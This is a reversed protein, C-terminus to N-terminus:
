DSGAVPKTMEGGHRAGLDAIDKYNSVIKEEHASRAIRQPAGCRRIENVQKRTQFINCTVFFIARIPANSWGLAFKV